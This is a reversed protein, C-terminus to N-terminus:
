FRSNQIIRIPLKGSTPTNQMNHMSLNPNNLKALPSMSPSSPTLLMLHALPNSYQPLQLPSNKLMEPVTMKPLLSPPSDARYRLTLFM